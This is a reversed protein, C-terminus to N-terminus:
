GKGWGAPYRSGPTLSRRGYLESLTVFTFGKRQLDKLLAPVARVTTRHIDHFLVISGPKAAAGRRRVVGSDRDRWDKTDVSWLIQALGERRAEATVSRNTSGYPPRMITARVGTRNEILKQTRAIEAKMSSRSIATLQRHSWTHNGIEHGERVMRVLNNKSDRAAMQGVVFFTARAGRKALMDLLTSTYAGPGDDFTLAVCKVHKCDIDRPAPM